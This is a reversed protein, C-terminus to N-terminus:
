VILQGIVESSMCQNIDIKEAKIKNYNNNEM